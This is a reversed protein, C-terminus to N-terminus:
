TGAGHTHVDIFGPSLYSGKGDIITDKESPLLEEQSISVIKGEECKLSGLIIKGGPAIIRANKIITGMAM